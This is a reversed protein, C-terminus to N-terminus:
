WVNKTGWVIEFPSGTGVSVHKGWACSGVISSLNDVNCKEAAREFCKRPTQFHSAIVTKNLCNLLLAISM